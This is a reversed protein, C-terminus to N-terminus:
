LLASSNDKIRDFELSKSSQLHRPYHLCLQRQSHLRLQISAFTRLSPISISMKKKKFGGRWFTQLIKNMDKRCVRLTVFIRTLPREKNSKGAERLQVYNWIFEDVIHFQPRFITSSMAWTIINYDQLKM